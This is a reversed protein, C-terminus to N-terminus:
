SFNSVSVQVHLMVHRHDPLFHGWCYRNTTVIGGVKRHDKNVELTFRSLVSDNMFGTIVELTM